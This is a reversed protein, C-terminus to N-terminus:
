PTPCPLPGNVELRNGGILAATPDLPVQHLAVGVRDGLLLLPTADVGTVPAGGLRQAVPLFLEDGAIGLHAVGPEDGDRGSGEVLEVLVGLDDLLEGALVAHVQANEVGALVEAPCGRKRESESGRSRFRTAYPFLTYTRTTIPPRRVM